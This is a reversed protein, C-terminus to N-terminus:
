LDDNREPLAGHYTAECDLDEHNKLEELKDYDNQKCKVIISKSLRMIAIDVKDEIFSLFRDRNDTDEFTIVYFKTLKNSDM